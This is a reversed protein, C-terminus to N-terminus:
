VPRFVTGDISGVALAHAQLGAPDVVAAAGLRAPRYSAPLAYVRILYDDTTGESPCPPSYPAVVHGPPTRGEAVGRSGAPIDVVYWHTYDSATPDEMYLAFWGTGAPAGTWSLPLGAGAGKCTYRDPIAGGQTFASSTVTLRAPERAGDSGTTRAASSGCGALLLTM